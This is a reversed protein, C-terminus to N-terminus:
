EGSTASSIVPPSPSPSIETKPVLVTMKPEPRFLIWMLLGFPWFGLAVLLAAAWGPKGRKHADRWAWAISGCYICTVLLFIASGWFFGLANFVVVSAMGVIVAASFVFALVAMFLLVTGSMGM